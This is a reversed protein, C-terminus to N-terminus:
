GLKELECVDLAVDVHVGDLGVALVGDFLHGFRGLRVAVLVHGDGVVGLIEGHGVSEGVLARKLVDLANALGVLLDVADLDEGAAFHSM